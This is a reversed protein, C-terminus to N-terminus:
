EDYLTWVFGGCVNVGYRESHLGTFTVAKIDVYCGDWPITWRYTRGAEITDGNLQDKGWDDDGAPTIYVAWIPFGSSRQNIIKVWKNEYGTAASSPVAIAFSLSFAAMLLLAVKQTLKFM